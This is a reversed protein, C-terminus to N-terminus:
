ISGHRGTRRATMFAHGHLDDAHPCRRTRAVEPQRPPARPAAGAALRQLAGLGRHLASLKRRYSFKAAGLRVRARSRVLHADLMLAANQTTAPSKLRSGSGVQAGNSGPEGQSTNLILSPSTQTAQCVAPGGSGCHGGLDKSHHCPLDRARRPWRTTKGIGQALRLAYQRFQGAEV